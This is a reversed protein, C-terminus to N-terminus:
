SGRSIHSQKSISSSRLPDGQLEPNFGTPQKHATSVKPVERELKNNKTDSMAVMPHPKKPIQPAAKTFGAQQPQNEPYNKDTENSKYSEDASTSKKTM